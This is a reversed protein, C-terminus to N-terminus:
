SRSLWMYANKLLYWAKISDELFFQFAESTCPIHRQDLFKSYIDEAAMMKKNSTKVLVSKVEVSGITYEQIDTNSSCMM